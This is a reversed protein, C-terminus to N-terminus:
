PMKLAEQNIKIHLWSRRDRNEKLANNSLCGAPLWPSPAPLTLSKLLAGHAQHLWRKAETVQM